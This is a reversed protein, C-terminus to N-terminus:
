GLFRDFLPVCLYPEVTSVAQWDREALHRIFSHEKSEHVEPKKNGRTSLIPSGSVPSRNGNPKRSFVLLLPHGLFVVCQFPCVQTSMMTPSHIAVLGKLTANGM